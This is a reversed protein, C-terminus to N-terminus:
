NEGIFSHIPVMKEINLNITENLKFRYVFFDHYDDEEFSKIKRIQELASKEDTYVGSIGQYYVGKRQIVYIFSM